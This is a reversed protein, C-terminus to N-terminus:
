YLQLRYAICSFSSHCDFYLLCHTAHRFKQVVKLYVKGLCHDGPVVPLFTPFNKFEYTGYCGGASVFTVNFYAALLAIENCLFSCAIGILASTDKHLRLVVQSLSMGLLCRGADDAASFGRLAVYYM